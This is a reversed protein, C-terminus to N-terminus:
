LKGAAWLVANRLLERFQQNEFAEPGHGPQIVVVRSQRYASIWAVASSSHPSNTKLLVRSDGSILLNDYSEDILHITGLNKVVPHNFAPQIVLDANPTYTSAAHGDRPQLLYLVGSVEQFWWPWNQNDGIAHHLIVLGKNSEVFARLNKREIESTTDALDYLVLVDTEARFDNQFASPHPNVTIAFSTLGDFVHYFAISHPHGGTVLQVRIRSNSPEGASESRPSLLGTFCVLVCLLTRFCM